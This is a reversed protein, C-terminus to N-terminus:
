IDWPTQTPASYENGDGLVNLNLIPPSKSYHTPNFDKYKNAIEKTKRNLELYFEKSSPPRDDVWNGQIMADRLVMLASIAKTVHSLGSDPDIDEGEWWSTMHRHAADFYISARVGVIRWNFKGYKCAGEFLAVGVEAVVAMPLCSMPAKGCGVADKPNTEKVEIM